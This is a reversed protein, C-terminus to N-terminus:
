VHVLAIINSLTLNRNSSRRKQIVYMSVVNTFESIIEKSSLKVCVLGIFFTQKTYAITLNKVECAFCKCERLIYTYEPHMTVVM